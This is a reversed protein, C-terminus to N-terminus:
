QSSRMLMPKFVKITQLSAFLNQFRIELSPLARLSLHASFALIAHDADMGWLTYFM